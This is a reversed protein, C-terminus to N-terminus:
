APGAPCGRRGGADDKRDGPLPEAIAYKRLFLCPRLSLKYARLGPIGLDQEFNMLRCGRALLLQSERHRLLATLGVYSRDAKQFHAVCSVGDPLVEWISFAVLRGGDEVGCAGLRDDPVLACLRRLAALERGHDEGAPAPKQSAWLEFLEVVAAQDADHLDLLRFSFAARPRCRGIQERHRAFCSGDLSAWAAIAYVYDHNDRDETVALRRPLRPDAEMVAEPILQLRRRLGERRAADLLTRATEAVATRGLFSYFPEGSMYDEFRVVLNGNLVGLACREDTGWALLSTFSYDSYPPYGATAAEIVPRDAIELRRLAPFPPLPMM